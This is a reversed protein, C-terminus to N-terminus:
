RVVCVKTTAVTGTRAMRIFYIGPELNGTDSLNVVHLGASARDLRTVSRRRGADDLLELAVDEERELAFTVLVERHAPNMVPRPPALLTSGPVDLWVEGFAERGSEGEIELRYGYRLLRSSFATPPLM